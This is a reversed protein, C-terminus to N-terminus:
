CMCPTTRNMKNDKWIRFGNNSPIPRFTKRRECPLPAAASTATWSSMNWTAKCNSHSLYKRPIRKIEKVAIFNKNFFIIKYTKKRRNKRISIHCLPNKITVHSCKNKDHYYVEHIVADSHKDSYKGIESARGFYEHRQNDPTYVFFKVFPTSM